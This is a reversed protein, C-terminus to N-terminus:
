ADPQGFYAAAKQALSRIIRRGADRCGLSHWDDGIKVRRSSMKIEVFEPDADPRLYIVATPLNTEDYDMDVEFRRDIMHLLSGMVTHAALGLRGTPTKSIRSDWPGGAEGYYKTWRSWGLITNEELYAALHSHSMDVPHDAETAAIPATTM